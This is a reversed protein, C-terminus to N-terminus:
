ARTSLDKSILELMYNCARGEDQFEKLGTKTGRESYYVEWKNNEYALVYQENPLGSWAYADRRIGLANLKKELESRNM